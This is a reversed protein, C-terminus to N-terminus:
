ALKAAHDRRRLIYSQANTGQTLKMGNAHPQLDTRTGQRVTRALERQQEIKRGLEVAVDLRVPEDPKLSKLGEIAWAVLAPDMRLQRRIFSELNTDGTERWMEFEEAERVFRLLERCDYPIDVAM